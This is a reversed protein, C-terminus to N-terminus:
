EDGLPSRTDVSWDYAARQALKAATKSVALPVGDPVGELNREAIAAQEYAALLHKLDGKRVLLRKDDGTRAALADLDYAAGFGDRFVTISASETNLQLTITEEEGDVTTKYSITETPHM